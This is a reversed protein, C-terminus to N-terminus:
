STACGVYTRALDELLAIPTGIRLGTRAALAPGLHDTNASVVWDPYAQVASVVAELDNTHRLAPLVVGVRHARVHHVEGNLSIHDSPYSVRPTPSALRPSNMHPYVTRWSRVTSPSLTSVAHRKQGRIGAIWFDPPILKDLIIPSMSLTPLGM